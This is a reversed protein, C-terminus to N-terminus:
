SVSESVWEWVNNFFAVMCCESLSTVRRVYSLLSSSAHGSWCFSLSLSLSFSFSLQLVGEFFFGPSKHGKLCQNCKQCCDWCEYHGKFLSHCIGLEQLTKWTLREEQQVAWRGGYYVLENTSTDLGWHERRKPGKKDDSKWSRIKGLKM